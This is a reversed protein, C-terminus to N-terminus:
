IKLFVIHKKKTTYDHKKLELIKEKLSFCEPFKSM